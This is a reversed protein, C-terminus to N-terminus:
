LLSILLSLRVRVYLIALTVIQQHFLLVHSVELWISGFFMEGVYGVYLYYWSWSHYVHMSVGLDLIVFWESYDFGWFPEMVM